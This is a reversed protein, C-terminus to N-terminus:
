ILNGDKDLRNYSVPLPPKNDLIQEIKARVDPKDKLTKYM